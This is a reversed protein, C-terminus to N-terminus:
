SSGDDHSHGEPKLKDATGIQDNAHM